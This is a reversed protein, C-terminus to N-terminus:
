IGLMLDMTYIDSRQLFTKHWFEEYEEIFLHQCAERKYDDNLFFDM